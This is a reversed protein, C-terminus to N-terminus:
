SSLIVIKKYMVLFAVLVLISALVYIAPVGAVAAVASALLPALGNALAQLSGNIGLAAGQSEAGVGKSILAPLNTSILGVAAATFPLLVYLWVDNFVFVQAM